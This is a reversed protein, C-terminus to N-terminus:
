FSTQLTLFNYYATAPVPVPLIARVSLLVSLSILFAAMSGFTRVAKEEQYIAPADDRSNVAMPYKKTNRGM